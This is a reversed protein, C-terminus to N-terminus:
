AMVSDDRNGNAVLRGQSGETVIQANTNKLKYLMSPILKITPYVLSTFLESSESTIYIRWAVSKQSHLVAVIGFIKKFMMCVRDLDSKTYGLTHINFTKHRISKLSGDDMYWIALVLPTMWKYLLKPIVKKGDVYFQGHYFHFAAHSVTVMEYSIRGDSRVKQKPVSPVWEKFENYIWFLYEKQAESHEVRLRYTDGGPRKELHGDGLLLGIILERQRKTLSVNIKQQSEM